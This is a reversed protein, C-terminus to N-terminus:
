NNYMMIVQGAVGGSGEMWGLAGDVRFSWHFTCLDVDAHPATCTPPNGRHEKLSAETSQLPTASCLMSLMSLDMPARLTGCYYVLGKYMTDGGCPV